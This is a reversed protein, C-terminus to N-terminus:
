LEDKYEQTKVPTEITTVQQITQEDEIDQITFPSSAHKKVFNYLAVVSRDTDVM